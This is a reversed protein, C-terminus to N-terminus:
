GLENPTRGGGGGTRHVLHSLSFIQINQKVVTNKPSFIYKFINEGGYKPPSFIYKFM